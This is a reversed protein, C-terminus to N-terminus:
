EKKLNAIKAFADLEIALAQTELILEQLTVFIQRSGNVSEQMRYAKVYRKWEDVKEYLKDLDSSDKNYIM